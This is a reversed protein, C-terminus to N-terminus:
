LHLCFSIKISAFSYWKLFFEWILYRFSLVSNPDISNEVFTSRIKLDSAFRYCFGQSIVNSNANFIFFIDRFVLLVFSLLLFVISFYQDCKWICRIQLTADHKNELPGIKLYHRAIFPTCMKVNNANFLVRPLSSYCFLLSM